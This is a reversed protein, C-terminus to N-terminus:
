SFFDDLESYNEQVQKFVEIAVLSLKMKKTEELSFWGVESIKEPEKIQIKSSVLKCIYPVAVWHQKESIILHNIPKLYVLPKISIGLEEKVERKITQAFTEGFDMAGGPFGWHEKENQSSKGRKILLFKGEKNLIIAGVGLGIFDKGKTIKNKMM